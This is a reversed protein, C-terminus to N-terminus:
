GNKRAGILFEQNGSGGLVPSEIVGDVTWGSQNSLWDRVHDVARHRAASDRVVGGKGVAERGAEFQPKILAILWAGPAAFTLPVPLAKTLSIFSVDAVIAKIPDPIDGATLDRADKGEYVVVRPDERLKPDLQDRGVDVAYVRCAGRELLVQTFGGTSAGVDLAMVGDASYGFHDLAAVLKWAARSVFADAGDTLHVTASEPIVTSPKTVPVGDVLVQGRLILDRARSRTSILGRDVLARDLRTRVM